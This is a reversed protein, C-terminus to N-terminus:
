EPWRTADASSVVSSSLPQEGESPAVSPESLAESRVEVGDTPQTVDEQHMGETVSMLAEGPEVGKVKTFCLSYRLPTAGM